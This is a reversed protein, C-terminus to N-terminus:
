DSKKLQDIFREIVEPAVPGSQVAKLERNPGFIMFTPTGKLPRGSTEYFFKAVSQSEALVNPFTVSHEESFAWAEFMDSQGDLSMGLVAIDGERHREHFAAQTSMERACIPCTHSWIMVVIWRENPFIKEVAAPRGDFDVFGELMGAMAPFSFAFLLNVWIIAKKLGSLRM